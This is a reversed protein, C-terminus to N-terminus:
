GNNLYPLRLLIIIKIPSGAIFLKKLFSVQGIKKGCCMKLIKRICCNKDKYKLIVHRILLINITSGINISIYAVFPAIYWKFFIGCLVTPLYGM